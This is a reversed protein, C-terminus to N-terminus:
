RDARARYRQGPIMGHEVRLRAILAPDSTKELEEFLGDLSPPWVALWRGGHPTRLGHETGPPIFVVDGTNLVTTGNAGHLEVPGDLIVFAEPEDPHVHTVVSEDPDARVEGLGWRGGTETARVFEHITSGPREYAHGGNARAIRLGDLEDVGRKM